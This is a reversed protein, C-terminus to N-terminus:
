LLAPVGFKKGSMAEVGNYCQGWRDEKEIGLHLRINKLVLFAAEAKPYVGTFEKNVEWDNDVGDFAYWYNSLVQFAKM